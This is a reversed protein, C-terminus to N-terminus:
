FGYTVTTYLRRRDYHRDPLTEGLRETFDYNLSLSVRDTPRIAVAAGYRNVDLTYATIGGLFFESAGSIEGVRAQIRGCTLSEAVSLTLQPKMLMLQKLEYKM